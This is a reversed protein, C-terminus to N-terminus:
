KKSSIVLTGLHSQRGSGSPLGPPSPDVRRDVGPNVVWFGSKRVSPGHGEGIVEDVDAEDAEHEDLHLAPAEGDLGEQERDPDDGVHREIEQLPNGGGVVVQEEDIPATAM